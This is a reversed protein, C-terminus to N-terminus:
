SQTLCEEAVPKEFVFLCPFLFHLEMASLPPFFNPLLESTLRAALGDTRVMKDGGLCGVGEVAEMADEGGFEGERWLWLLREQLEGAM